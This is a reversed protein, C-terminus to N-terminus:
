RRAQGDQRQMSLAIREATGLPIEGVVTIMMEGDATKLRRSVAATPGLQVRTDRASAGNLPELFVSFHALGDAYLLSTVSANSASSKRLGTQALEFGAPIWKSRWASVDRPAPGAVTHLVPKCNPTAKLDASAPAGPELRTYQLRELLRGQADILLSKLLLGTRTDLHMEFAYRDRDKPVLTVVVADRGAVRSAGAVRLEYWSMLKLPDVVGDHGAPGQGVSLMPNGTACSTRGGVQVRESAVGDLKLVREHVGGDGARHWVQYTSFDGDREYVFTGEFNQTREARTMSELWQAADPAAAVPAALGLLFPLFLAARM